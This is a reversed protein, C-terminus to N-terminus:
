GSPPMSNRQLRDPPIRNIPSERPIRRMFARKGEVMANRLVDDVPSLSPRGTSVWTNVMHVRVGFERAVLSVIPDREVKVKMSNLEADNDSLLYLDRIRLHKIAYFISLVRYPGFPYTPANVDYGSLAFVSGPTALHAGEGNLYEMLRNRPHEVNPSCLLLAVPCQKEVRRAKEPHSDPLRGLIETVMRAIDDLITYVESNRDIRYVMGTRYNTIGMNVTCDVDKLQFDNRIAKAIKRAQKTVHMEHDHIPRIFDEPSEGDFGYAAQLFELMSENGTVTIIGCDRRVELRGRVFEMLDRYVDAAHGMGCNISSCKEFAIEDPSWVAKGADAAEKLKADAHTNVQLVFKMPLWGEPATERFPWWKGEMGMNIKRHIGRKLGDIIDGTAFVGAGVVSRRIVEIGAAAYLKGMYEAVKKEVYGRDRSDACRIDFVAQVEKIEGGNLDQGEMIEGTVIM